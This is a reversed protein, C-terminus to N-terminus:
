GATEAPSISLIIDQMKQYRKLTKDVVEAPLRPAPPTKDWGISEVYDRIVQKDMTPIESGTALAREYEDIEVFRSSDPTFIEDILLLEGKLLGFEFKTDLLYIGKQKLAAFAFNFLALSRAKLSDALQPVRRKLEAFSINEDHGQDNKVAPTFAPEPLMQGKKLGQPLPVAALTGHAFYEKYGSGMLFGRVVCEYDIRETRKVLSARDAFEPSNFPPPFQQYDATIFHHPLEKLLSFWHASIANLIKGKGPIVDEFVVDFASLRDSSVLLLKDGLDYVDRVKGRYSPALKMPASNPEKGAGGLSGARQMM